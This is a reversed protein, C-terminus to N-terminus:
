RPAEAPHEPATAAAAEARPALRALAALVVDAVEQLVLDGVDHGYRDNVSKFHDLDFLVVATSGGARRDQVATHLADILSRRNPLGTLVDTHALERLRAAEARSLALAQACTYKPMASSSSSSQSSSPYTVFSSSSRVYESRGFTRRSAGRLREFLLSNSSQVSGSGAGPRVAEMRGRCLGSSAGTGTAGFGDTLTCRTTGCVNWSAFVIASRKLYRFLTPLSTAMSASGSTM